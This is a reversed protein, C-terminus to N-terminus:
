EDDEENNPLLRLVYNSAREDEVYALCTTGDDDRVRVVEGLDLPKWMGSKFYHVRGGRSGGLDVVVTKTSRMRTVAESQGSLTGSDGEVPDPSPIPAGPAYRATLADHEDALREACRATPEYTRSILPLIQRLEMALAHGDAQRAACEEELAQVLGRLRANQEKLAEVAAHLGEADGNVMEWDARLEQVLGRLRENEARLREAEEAPELVARFRSLGAEFSEQARLAAAFPDEAVTRRRPQVSCRLGCSACTM